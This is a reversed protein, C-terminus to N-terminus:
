SGKLALQRLVGSQEGRLFASFIRITYWEQDNLGGEEPLQNFGTPWHLIIIKEAGKKDGKVPMRVVQLIVNRCLLYDAYLQELHPNNKWFNKVPKGM